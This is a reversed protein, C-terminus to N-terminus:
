AVMIGAKLHCDPTLSFVRTLVVADIQSRVTVVRPTCRHM